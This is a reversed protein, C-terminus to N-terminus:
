VRRMLLYSQCGGSSQNISSTFKITYTGKNNVINVNQFYHLIYCCCTKRTWGDNNNSTRRINRVFPCVQTFKYGFFIIRWYPKKNARTYCWNVTVLLCCLTMQVAYNKTSCLKSADNICPCRIFVCIAGFRTLVSVSKLFAPGHMTGNLV